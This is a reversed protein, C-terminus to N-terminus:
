ACIHRNSVEESNAFAYDGARSRDKLRLCNASYKALTQKRDLNPLHVGADHSGYVQKKGNEDRVLQEVKRFFKLAVPRYGVPYSRKFDTVIM